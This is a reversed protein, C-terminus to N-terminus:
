FLLSSKKDYQLLVIEGLAAAQLMLLRFQRLHKRSLDEQLNLDKSKPNAHTKLLQGWADVIQDLSRRKGASGAQVEQMKGFLIGLQSNQPIRFSQPVSYESSAGGEAQTERHQSESTAAAAASM